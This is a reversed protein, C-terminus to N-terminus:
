PNVNIQKNMDSAMNGHADRSTSLIILQARTPLDTIQYSTYTKTTRKEQYFLVFVQRSALCSDLFILAPKGCAM